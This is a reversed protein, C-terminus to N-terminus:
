VKEVYKFVFRVRKDPCGRFHPNGEQEQMESVDKWASLCVGVDFSKIVSNTNM